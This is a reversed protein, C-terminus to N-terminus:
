SHSYIAIDIIHLSAHTHIYLCAHMLKYPMYIYVIFKTGDM